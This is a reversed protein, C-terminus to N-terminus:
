QLFKWVIFIIIVVVVVLITLIAFRKEIFQIAKEGYKYVAFGEAFFRLGRGLISAIVFLFLNMKFVGAAITFVKYPIPTLGAAFVATFGYTQYWTEVLQFHHVANYFKIIPYAITDFFSIGIYYGAIGGIVSAFTTITSYILWKEKKALVMPILMTDPPIPFFSSEALSLLGLLYLAWKSKAANTIKLKWKKYM